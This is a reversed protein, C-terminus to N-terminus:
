PQLGVLRGDSTGFFMRNGVVVGEGTVTSGLDMSWVTGGDDMDFRYLRGSADGAFVADGIVLPQITFPAKSPVRWRVGGHTRDMAILEGSKGPVILHTGLAPPAGPEFSLVTLWIQEGTGLDLAAIGGMTAENVGFALYVRDEDIVPHGLIPGPLVKTWHRGSASLSCAEGFFNGVILRHGDSAAGSLPGEILPETQATPTVIIGSHDMWSAAGSLVLPVSSIAARSGHSAKLTGTDADLVQMVGNGNAVFIGTDMPVASSSAGIAARWRVEGDAGLRSVVGAAVALLDPGVITLPHTVPGGLVSSWSVSPVTSFSPGHWRGQRHGQPALASVTAEVTVEEQDFSPPPVTHQVPHRGAACGMLCILVLVRVTEFMATIIGKRSLALSPHSAPSWTTEM